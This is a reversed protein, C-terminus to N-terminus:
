QPCESTLTQIRSSHVNGKWIHEVLLAGEGETRTRHLCSLGCRSGYIVSNTPPVTSTRKSKQLWSDWHPTHEWIVKVQWLEAQNSQMKSRNTDCYVCLCTLDNSLRSPRQTCGENGRPERHNANIGAHNFHGASPGRFSQTSECSSRLAMRQILPQILLLCRKWLDASLNHSSAYLLVGCQDCPTNLRSEKHNKDAMNHVAGRAGAGQMQDDYSWRKPPCPCTDAAKHQWVNKMFRRQRVDLWFTATHQFLDLKHQGVLEQQGSVSTLLWLVLRLVQHWKDGAM